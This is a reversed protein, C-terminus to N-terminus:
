ASSSTSAVPAPESTSECTFSEPKQSMLSNKLIVTGCVSFVHVTASVMMPTAPSPNVISRLRASQYAPKGTLRSQECRSRAVNGPLNCKLPRARLPHDEAGPARQAAPHCGGVKMAVECVDSGIRCLQQGICAHLQHPYVVDRGLLETCRRRHCM